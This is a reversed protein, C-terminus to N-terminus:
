DELYTSLSRVANSLVENLTVSSDDNCTDYIDKDLDMTVRFLSVKLNEFLDGYNSMLKTIHNIVSQGKKKISRNINSRGFYPLLIHINMLDLYNLETPLYIPSKSIVPEHSARAEVLARKPYKSIVPEQLARVAALSYRPVKGVVIVYLLKIEAPVEKDDIGSLEWIENVFMKFRELYDSIYEFPAIYGVKSSLKLSINLRQLEWEEFKIKSQYELHHIRLQLGYLYRERRTLIHPDLELGLIKNVRDEHNPSYYIDYSNREKAEEICITKMRELKHKITALQIPLNSHIKQERKIIDSAIEKVSIKGDILDVATNFNIKRNLAKKKTKGVLFNYVEVARQLCQVKENSKRFALFKEQAKKYCVIGLSKEELLSKAKQAYDDKEFYSKNNNKEEYEELDCICDIEEEDSSVLKRDYQNYSEEKDSFILSKELSSQVPENNVSPKYELNSVKSNLIEKQIIEDETNNSEMGCFTALEELDIDESPHMALYKFLQEQTIKSM